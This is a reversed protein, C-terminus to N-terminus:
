HSGPDYAIADLLAARMNWARRPLPEAPEPEQYWQQKSLWKLLQSYSRGKGNLALGCAKGLWEKSKNNLVVFGDPKALTLLRTAFSRGIGRVSCMEDLLDGGLLRLSQARVTRVYKLRELVHNRDDAAEPSELFFRVDTSRRGISGLLADGHEFSHAPAILSQQAKDLTTWSDVGFLQQGRFITDEWSPQDGFVGFATNGLRRARWERDLVLLAEMYEDWTPGSGGYFRDPSVLSAINAM